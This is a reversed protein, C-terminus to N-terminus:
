LIFLLTSFKLLLSVRKEFKHSKFDVFDHFNTKTFNKQKTEESFTRHVKIGSSTSFVEVFLSLAHHNWTYSLRFKQKQKRKERERWLNNVFFCWYKIIITQNFFACLLYVCFCSCACFTSNEILSPFPISINEKM